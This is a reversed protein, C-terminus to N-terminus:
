KRRRRRLHSALFQQGTLIMIVTAPAPTSDRVWWLGLSRENGRPWAWLRQSRFQKFSRRIEHGLNDGSVHPQGDAKEGFSHMGAEQRLIGIYTVAWTLVLQTNPFVQQRSQPPTRLKSAPVVSCAAWGWPQLLDQHIGKGFSVPPRTLDDWCCISFWGGWFDNDKIFLSPCSLGACLQNKIAGFGGM